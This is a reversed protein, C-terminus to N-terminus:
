LEHLWLRTLCSQAAVCCVVLTPCKWNSGIQKVFGGLLSCCRAGGKRCSGTVPPTSGMPYNLQGCSDETGASALAQSVSTPFVILHMIGLINYHSLNKETWYCGNEMNLRFSLSLNHSSPSESSWLLFKQYKYVCVKGRLPECPFELVASSKQFSNWSEM